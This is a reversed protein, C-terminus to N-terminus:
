RSPPAEGGTVEGHRELVTEEGDGDQLLGARTLLRDHLSTASSILHEPVERWQPDHHLLVEGFRRAGLVIHRLAVREDDQELGHRRSVRYLVWAEKASDAFGDMAAILDPELVDRDSERYRQLSDALSEASGFLAPDAGDLVELRTADEEQQGALWHDILALTNTPLPCFTWIHTTAYDLALVRIWSEHFRVGIGSSIRELRPRLRGQAEHRVIREVIAITVAISLAETAINPAWEDLADATFWAAVAAVAVAALVLTTWTIPSPKRFKM